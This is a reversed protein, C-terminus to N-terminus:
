VITADEYEPRMMTYTTLAYLSIRFLPFVLWLLYAVYLYGLPDM